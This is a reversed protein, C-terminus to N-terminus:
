GAPPRRYPAHHYYKPRADLRVHVWAVGLGSTSVWVPADSAEWRAELEAGVRAWLAHRQAAPARRAFAALHPYADMPGSRAPVILRADGGLNDFAHVADVAVDRSEALPVAFPAPDPAVRALAPAGLLVQEFPRDRTARSSPLTEWFYAESSAGSLVDLFADRFAADSRWRTAVERWSLKRGDDHFTARLGGDLTEARAELTM